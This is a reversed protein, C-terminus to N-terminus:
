FMQKLFYFPPARLQNNFIKAANIKIEANFFITIFVALCLFLKFPLSFNLGTNLLACIPCHSEDDSGHEHLHVHCTLIVLSLIIIVIFLYLFRSRM